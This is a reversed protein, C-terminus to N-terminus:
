VCLCAGVWVFANQVCVLVRGCLYVRFVCVLVHGCLCVGFVRGCLCLRFKCALVLGCLCDSCVLLCVSVSGCDLRVFVGVYVCKLSVYKCVVM